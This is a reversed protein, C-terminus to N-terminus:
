YEIVLPLHDSIEIQPVHSGNVRISPSTFAFDAFYQRDSAPYHGYSLPSRTTTIHFDTILNRLNTREIMRISETDPMLNFDGGLIKEGREDALFDIIKQSQAIREPTDRKDGPYATGHIHALTYPAGNKEFRIYQLKHPFAKIDGHNPWGEGAIVFDGHSLMRWSASKKAFIAIGHSLPFDTAYDGDFDHMAIAYYPTFDPLAACLDRYIDARGGWSVTRNKKPSDFVEQLCFFDTDPAAARLFAMLTEYMKGGWINLFIIKMLNMSFLFHRATSQVARSDRYM